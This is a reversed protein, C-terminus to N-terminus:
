ADDVFSSMWRIFTVISRRDIQFFVGGTVKKVARGWRM